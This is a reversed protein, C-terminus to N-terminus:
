WHCKYHKCVGRGGRKKEKKKPVFLQHQFYGKKEDLLKFWGSVAGNTGPNEPDFLEALAFSMSGLFTDKHGIAKKQRDKVTIHLRTYHLDIDKSRVEWQFQEDFSPHKANHKVETMNITPKTSDELDPLVQLVTFPNCAVPELDRCSAVKVVMVSIPKDVGIVMVELKVRGRFARKVGGAAKSPPQKAQTATPMAKLGATAFAPNAITPKTQSDSNAKKVALPNRYETGVDIESRSRARADIDEIYQDRHETPRCVCSGM